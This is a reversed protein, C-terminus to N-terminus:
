KIIYVAYWLALYVGVTMIWFIAASVVGEYDKASYGGGLTRLAAVVVYGMGLGTLVLQMGILAYIMAAAESASAPMEMLSLLYATQAIQAFGFVLTLGFAIYANAKDDSQVAAVAWLVSVVSFSLTLLMFNPQTLPITVGEPLWREGSAVVEARRSAYYGVLGMYGVLTAACALATGILLLRPRAPEGAPVDLPIPDYPSIDTM